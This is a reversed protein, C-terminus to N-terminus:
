WLPGNPVVFTELLVVQGAIDVLYDLRPKKFQIVEASFPQVFPM